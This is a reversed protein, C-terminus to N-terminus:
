NGGEVTGRCVEAWPTPVLGLEREIASSDLVYPRQFQYEVERLERLIPVVRGGIGLM